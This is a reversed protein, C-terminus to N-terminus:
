LYFIINGTNHIHIINSKKDIVEAEVTIPESDDNKIQVDDYETKIQVDDDDTRNNQYQEIKSLIDITDPDIAKRRKEDQELIYAERLKPDNELRESFERREEKHNMIIDSFDLGINVNDIM